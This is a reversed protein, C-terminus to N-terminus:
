RGQGARTCPGESGVRGQGVRPFGRQVGQRRGDPDAFGHGAVAAAPTGVMRGRLGPVLLNLRPLMASWVSDVGVVDVVSDAKAAYACGSRSTLVCHSASCTSAPFTPPGSPM